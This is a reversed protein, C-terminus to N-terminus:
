RCDPPPGGKFVYNILYVGDAVDVNADGNADAAQPFSPAPGGKFVYNIIYVADAVNVGGDNNVDGCVYTISVSLHQVDSIAPDDSDTARVSFRFLGASAPVGTLKGAVPDLTLGNPIIGATLEWSYPPTGGIAELGEDYPTGATGSALTTTTITVEPADPYRVEARILFNYGTGYYQTMTKWQGDQYLGSRGEPVNLGNDMYIWLTEPPAPDLVTFGIHFNDGAKFALNLDNVDIFGLDGDPIDVSDIIGAPYTGDSEWIYMRVPIQPFIGTVNITSLTCPQDAVLRTNFLDLSPDPLSMMYSAAGNDSRLMASNSKKQITLTPDGCLTMGYFWTIEWPEFGGVSQAEFWQRYAEGIEIKQGMPGYFDQFNLMSGSKTSGISALGHDPGFIYWGGCYDAEVYRSNSCAFLNYFHATPQIGKIHTNYMWSWQDVPKKFSHGGSWSHVFVGIFEYDLPLRGMYDSAWTTYLDYETTRRAYSGAMDFSWGPGAWDDDVYVLARNDVPMLGCRYRHDKAFYTNLIDVEDAGDLTMPSATLRGIYIEPKLDGTHSDFMGDGDSDGWVGDLDMYYLDCPFEDADAIIEYWPVPLDGILLCGKVGQAYIGQLIARVTQPSGGGMYYVSVEYGEGTLDLIYQDIADKTPLYLDGNMLIGIKVAAEKNLPAYHFAHEIVLPGRIGHRDFWEQYTIPRSGNPDIWQTRITNKIDFAPSNHDVPIPSLSDAWANSVLAPAFLGSIFPIFLGLLMALYRHSTTKSFFM